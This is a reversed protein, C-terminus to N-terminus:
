MMLRGVVMVLRVMDLLAKDRTRISCATRPLISVGGYERSGTHEDDTSSTTAHTSAKESSGRLAANPLVPV